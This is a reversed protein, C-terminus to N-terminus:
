LDSNTPEDHSEESGSPLSPPTYDIPLEIARDGDELRIRQKTLDGEQIATYVEPLVMYALTALASRKGTDTKMIEGGGTYKPIAMALAREFVAKEIEEPDHGMKAILKDNYMKRLGTFHPNNELARFGMRKNTTINNYIFDMLYDRVSRNQLNYGAMTYIVYIYTMSHFRFKRLNHHRHHEHIMDEFFKDEDPYTAFHRSCTYCLKERHAESQQHFPGWLMPATHTTYDEPLGLLKRPEFPFLGMLQIVRLKEIMFDPPIPITQSHYGFPTEPPNPKGEGIGFISSM